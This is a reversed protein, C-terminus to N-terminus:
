YMKLILLNLGVLGLSLALVSLSSVWQCHVFLHDVLKEEELGMACRNASNFNRRKLTIKTFVKGKSAAWTFFYGAKPAKSKWIAKDPFNPQNSGLMRESLSKVFFIGRSDLSCVIKDEVELHMDVDLNALLSLRFESHKGRECDNLKTYLYYGLSPSL